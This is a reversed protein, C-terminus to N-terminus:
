RSHKRAKGKKRRSGGPKAAKKSRIGFKFECTPPISGKCTNSKCTIKIKSNRPKRNDGPKVEKGDVYVPQISGVQAFKEINLIEFRRDKNSLCRNAARIRLAPATIKGGFSMNIKAEEARFLTFKRHIVMEREFEGGAFIGPTKEVVTLTVQLRAPLRKKRIFALLAALLLLLLCLARIMRPLVQQLPPPGIVVECSQTIHVEHDATSSTWDFWLTAKGYYTDDAGQGAYHPLVLVQNGDPQTTWLIERDDLGREYLAAYLRYLWAWPGSGASGPDVAEMRVELVAGAMEEAGPATLQGTAPDQIRPVVEIASGDELTHLLFHYTEGDQSAQPLSVKLQGTWVEPGVVSEIPVRIKQQCDLQALLEGLLQGASFKVETGGQELGALTCSEGGNTYTLTCSELKVLDSDVPQGSDADVLRATVRYSRNEVEGTQQNLHYLNGEQDEMLLEIDVAPTYYIEVNSVDSVPVQYTGAPITGQTSFSALIGELNTDVLINKQEEPTYNAPMKSSYQVQTQTAAQLTDEGGSLAGIEIQRGQAFITLDWVPIDITFALGEGTKELYSHDLARQNFVQNAVEIIGALIEESNEVRYSYIGQATDQAISQTGEGMVFYIVRVGQGAQQRLYAEVQDIPTDFEGDTLVILWRDQGQDVTELYACAAKVSNFYTGQSLHDMEHVTEVRQAADMSGQIQVPARSGEVSSRYASMPFICMTDEKKLMAAFVEMAYKARCWNESYVENERVMSGSDDYVVAIQRASGTNEVSAAAAPLALVSGAAALLVMLVVGTIWRGATEVQTKM